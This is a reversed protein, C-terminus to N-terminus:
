KLIPADPKRFKNMEPIKLIGDAFLKLQRLAPPPKVYVFGSAPETKGCSKM